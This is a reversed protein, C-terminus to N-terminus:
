GPKVGILDNKILVKRQLFELTSSTTQEIGVLNVLLGKLVLQEGARRYAGIKQAAPHTLIACSNRLELPRGDPAHLLPFRTATEM